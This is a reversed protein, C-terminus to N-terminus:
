AELADLTIRLQLFPLLADRVKSTDMDSESRAAWQVRDRLPVPDTFDDISVGLAWSLSLLDALTLVKAGNEFRSLASQSIAGGTREALARGSLKREQRMSRLRDPFDQPIM